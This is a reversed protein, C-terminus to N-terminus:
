RSPLRHSGPCTSHRAPLTDMLAGMVAPVQDQRGLRASPVWLTVKVAKSRAVLLAEAVVTVTCLCLLTFNTRWVLVPFPEPVLQAFAKVSM